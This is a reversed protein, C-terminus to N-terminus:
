GWKSGASTAAECRCQQNITGALSTLGLHARARHHRGGGDAHFYHLSGQQLRRTRALAGSAFTRTAARRACWASKPTARFRRSDSPNPSARRAKRAERGEALGNRATSRSRWVLY